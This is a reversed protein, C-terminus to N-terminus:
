KWQWMIQMGWVQVEHPASPHLADKVSDYFVLVDVMTRCHQHLRRVKRYKGLLLAMNVEEAQQM